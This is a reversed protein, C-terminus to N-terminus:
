QRRKRGFRCRRGPGDRAPRAASHRHRPVHARTVTSWNLWKASWVPRPCRIDAFIRSRIYVQLAAGDALLAVAAAVFGDYPAFAVAGAVRKSNEPGSELLLDKPTKWEFYFSQRKGDWSELLPGSFELRMAPNDGIAM